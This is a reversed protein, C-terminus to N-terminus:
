WRLGLEHLRRGLVDDLRGMDRAHVDIFELSQQQYVEQRALKLSLSGHEEQEEWCEIYVGAGPLYFDAYLEDTTPLRRAHAHALQALYLWNCVHLALQSPLRHGDLAVYDESVAADFMDEVALPQVEFHSLNQLERKIVEDDVIDRPWHVFLAGSNESESQVGGLTKGRGTIEWGLLTHQQLGLEAFARNVIRPHLKFCRAVGATTLKQQAEIASVLQHQELDAPWVIYRGYRNSEIYSGGEFEGKTTLAWGSDIRKIWGYDQLSAFLQQAPIDLARALASTSIKKDGEAM